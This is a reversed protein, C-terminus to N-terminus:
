HPRGAGDKETLKLNLKAKLRSVRDETSLKEDSAAFIGGRDHQADMGRRHFEEVRGDKEVLEELHENVYQIIADFQERTLSPM